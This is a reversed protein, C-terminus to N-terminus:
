HAHQIADARELAASMRAVAEDVQGLIWFVWAMLVLTSVGADQGAARAAMKDAEESANFLEIARELAERAEVIRGMFMLIMARGRIGNIVATRNGHTEAASPLDGLPALPQPWEGGAASAHE